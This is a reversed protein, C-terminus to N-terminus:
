PNYCFRHETDLHDTTICSWTYGNDDTVVAAGVYAPCKPGKNNIVDDIDAAIVKGAIATKSARCWMTYPAFHEDCLTPGSGGVLVSGAGGFLVPQLTAYPTACNTSLRSLFSSMLNNSECIHMHIQDVTKSHRSNIALAQKKPTYSRQGFDWGIERLNTHKQLELIDPIPDTTTTLDQKIRVWYPPKTKDTGSIDCQFSALCSCLGGFWIWCSYCDINSDAASACDENCKQLYIGSKGTGGCTDPCQTSCQVTNGACSCTLKQGNFNQIDKSKCQPAPAQQTASRQILAIVAVLLINQLLMRSAGSFHYTNLATNYWSM